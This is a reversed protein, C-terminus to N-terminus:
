SRQRRGRGGRRIRGRGQGAAEPQRGNGRAAQGLGDAGGPTRRQLGRGHGGMRGDLVVDGHSTFNTDYVLPPPQCLDRGTYNLRDEVLVLEFRAIPIDPLDDFVVNVRLGGPGPQLELDGYLQLALAGELDLGLRPLELATRWWCWRGPSRTRRSRRNRRRRDSSRSTPARTRRSTRRRHLHKRPIRRRRRHRGPADGTRPSPGGRWRGPLDGDDAAPVHVRRHPRPLRPQGRVLALVAGRRLQGVRVIRLRHRSHRQLLDRGGDHDQDRM